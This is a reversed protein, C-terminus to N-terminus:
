SIRDEIRRLMRLLLDALQIIEAVERPDEYMVTRHSTPNKFAGIAGAFLNLVAVKEGGEATPDCLPGGTKFAEQVLRTGILSNGLGSLRRVEVEVAKMASFAATEYDGRVFAPKASSELQISLGAILHQEAVLGLLASPDKAIKAGERTVRQWNGSTHLAQGVCQNAVLWAWADGLRGILVEQDVESSYAERAGNLVNYGSVTAGEGGLKRLLAVAIEGTSGTRLLELPVLAM